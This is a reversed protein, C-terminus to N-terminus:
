LSSFNVFLHPLGWIKCFIKSLHKSNLCLSKLTLYKMLCFVRLFSFALWPLLLCVFLHLEEFIKWSFHTRTKFMFFCIKTFVPNKQWNHAIHKLLSKVIQICNRTHVIVTNSCKWQEINMLTYFLFMFFDPISCVTALCEEAKVHSLFVVSHRNQAQKALKCFQSYLCYLSIRNVTHEDQFYWHVIRLHNM